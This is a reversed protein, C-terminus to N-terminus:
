CAWMESDLVNATSTNTPKAEAEPVEGGFAQCSAVRLSAASFVCCWLVGVWRAM